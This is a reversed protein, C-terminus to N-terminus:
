ASILKSLLRKVEVAKSEPNGRRTAPLAECKAPPQCSGRWSIVRPGAPCHKTPCHTAIEVRICRLAKPSAPEGQKSPGPARGISGRETPGREVYGRAGEIASGVTISFSTDSQL